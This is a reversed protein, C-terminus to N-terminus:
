VVTHSSVSVNKYNKTYSYVMGMISFHITGFYITYKLINDSYMFTLFPIFSTLAAYYYLKILTQKIKQRYFHFFQFAISLLLLGLGVYGYNHTVARYDNHAEAIYLGAARLAFLDSRPGNGLIPNEAINKDLVAYLFDRGSTQFNENDFRLDSLTGSGSFFMLRQIPKSYFIVIGLILAILIWLIRKYFNIKSFHLPFIILNSLIGMRAGGLISILPMLAYFFLYKKQKTYFFYSLFLSGLICSTMVLTRSAGSWIIIGRTILPYLMSYVFIFFAFWKFDNGIRVITKENYRMGSAAMGAAVPAIYQLTVQLGEFSYDIAVYVSIYLLWPLWFFFPFSNKNNLLIYLISIFLFFLWLYGRLAFPGIKVNFLTIIVVFIINLRFFLLSRKIITEQM